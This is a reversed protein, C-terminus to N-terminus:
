QVLLTSKQIEACTHSAALVFTSNIKYLIAYYCPSHILKQVFRTLWHNLPGNLPRVETTEISDTM